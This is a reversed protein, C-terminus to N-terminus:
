ENIEPSKVSWDESDLYKVMKLETGEPIDRRYEVKDMTSKILFVGLGGERVDDLDRSKIKSLDTREGFDRIVITLSDKDIVFKVVIDKGPQSRYAHKIVNAVAEDVALAIFMQKRESFGMKSAIAAACERLIGINGAESTVRVEIEKGMSTGM